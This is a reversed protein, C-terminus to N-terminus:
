PKKGGPVDANQRTLASRLATVPIQYAALREADIWVNIARDLGGVLTKLKFLLARVLEAAAGEVLRGATSRLTRRLLLWGLAIASIRYKLM